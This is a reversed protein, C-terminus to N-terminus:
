CGGYVFERESYADCLGRTEPSVAAAKVKGTGSLAAEIQSRVTDMPLNPCSKKAAQGKRTWYEYHGWVRDIPINHVTCLHACFTTLTDIQRQSFAENGVLAVGISTKNEGRVHAGAIGLPRGAWLMGDMDPDAPGDKFSRYTPHINTILYHYGIDSWGRQKHWRRIEDVDGWESATCHIWISDLPRM